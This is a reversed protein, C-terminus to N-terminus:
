QEDPECRHLNSVELLRPVVTYLRYAAMEANVFKLLSQCSALIWRDLVNTNTKEAAPDFEFHLDAVKKLLAVQQDFFQYSNWLPLLVKSVIDKV